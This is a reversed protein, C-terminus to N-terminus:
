YYLRLFDCLTDIHKNRRLLKIIFYLGIMEFIFLVICVDIAMGPSAVSLTLDKPINMLNCYEIGLKYDFMGLFYLCCLFSTLLLSKLVCLLLDKLSIYM